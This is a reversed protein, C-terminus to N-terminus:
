DRGAVSWLVGYFMALAFLAGAFWPATHRDFQISGGLLRFTILFIGFATVIVGADLSAAIVRHRPTAVPADCGIQAEVSTKLTRPGPPPAVIFDLVAQPNNSAPVPRRRVAPQQQTQVLPTTPAAVAAVPALPRRAITEFPIVNQAPAEFDAPAETM